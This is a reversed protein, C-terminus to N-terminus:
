AGWESCGDIKAADILESPLTQIFQRMLFTGFPAALGPLILATYSDLLDFSAMMRYLPVVIAYIPIMMSSIYIWFILNRGPFEKKAFSYGAMSAFLLQGLTVAGAM